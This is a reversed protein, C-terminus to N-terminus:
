VWGGGRATERERCESRETERKLSYTAKGRVKTRVRYVSRPATLYLTRYDDDGWACNAPVNPFEQTVGPFTTIRIIPEGPLRLIGLCTGAKDIVWIGGPGTAWINGLDDVKLGDAAGHDNTLANMDLIVRQGLLSGDDAVDFAYLTGVSRDSIYLTKEDPSLGIGNPGSKPGSLNKAAISLEGDPNIRWAAQFSLEKISGPPFNWWPDTFYITGDRRAVVDNPCNLTKEEWRNALVTFAGDKEQRVLRRLKQECMLLRGQQDFTNGNPYQGPDRFVRLTRDPRWQYIKDGYIDSFLLFGRPDWVPGETIAGDFTGTIKEILADPDILLHFEPHLTEIRGGRKQGFSLGRALAAAAVTTGLFARRNMM